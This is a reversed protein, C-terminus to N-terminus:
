GPGLIDCAGRCSKGREFDGSLIGGIAKDIKARVKDRRLEDLGIRGAQGAALVWYEAFGRIPAGGEGGGLFQDLVLAYIGLQLDDTPPELLAKTPMGTKYDILRFGVTGDALRIQDVRDARGTLEHTAEDAPQANRRYPIKLSQEVELVHAAPDILRQHCLTLQAVLQEVQAPDVPVGEPLQEFYAERGMAILDAMTPVPGGVSDSERASKSYRELAQHAASGLSQAPGPPDRLDLVHRLYFCRPCDIYSKLYSYSLTLPAQPPKAWDSIRSTTTPTPRISPTGVGPLTALLRDIVPDDGPVLWAPPVAHREAHAISAIRRTSRAISRAIARLDDTTIDARDAGSLAAAAEARAGRRADAAGESWAARGVMIALEGDAGEDTASRGCRRLVDEGDSRILRAGLAPDNVLEQAFHVSSSPAKTRKTFLVLRRKARTCAVYFLRREEALRREKSSRAEPPGEVLGPPLEAGDDSGSTQPYGWGPNVRPVYVTDFELGKSAHATVLVVGDEPAGEDPDPDDQSEGFEKDPLDDLYDLFAALDGPEELRTQRDRAFTILRVLSRVRDAHEGPPLLNAHALGTRLVIQVIMEAANSDPTLARLPGDIAALRQVAPHDANGSLLWRAIPGPDPAGAKGAEHRTAASRYATEWARVEDLTASVPPRLLVHRLHSGDSERALLGAWALVDVVGPEDRLSASKQLRVPIGELRLAQAIRRLDGHGRGVVASTKWAPADPGKSKRDHAIMAAIVEGDLTEEAVAILEPEPADARAPIAKGVPFVTRKEPAFRDVARSIVSAGLAIIAPTSRHNESLEIQTYRTWIRAFREFVRDDAGRFGYISQDDDGVVALDPGTAGGSDPPPQPPALQRLLEIQAANDDQLEDVVIHRCEDRVIAAVRRDRALLRIPLALLDGFSFLGRARCAAEYHEWAAVTDIFMERHERQAELGRADLARGLTDVGRDLGAGWGAAFLKARDPDVGGDTLADIMGAIRDAIVDLGGARAHVFLGRERVIRRLLRRRQPTDIMGLGRSGDGSRVPPLDLADGFRRLLRHGFGHFTSAQVRDAASAGILRVLRERLEGAAKNSYTLALVSEPAVGRNLIMHAVRSTIVRTKGTGPGALVVLPGGEHTVARRQAENMGDLLTAPDIAGAGSM